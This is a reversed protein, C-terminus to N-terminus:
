GHRLLKRLRAYGRMLTPSQKIARKVQLFQAFLPAAFAGKWTAPFLMDCLEIRDECVSNKYRAEGAGLDFHTMERSVLHRMLAHLLLDGPSSRAVAEDADFSNLMASFRGGRVFGAYTAVIRDGVSLAHVEM